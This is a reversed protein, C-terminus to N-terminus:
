FLKAPSYNKQEELDATVCNKWITKVKLVAAAMM